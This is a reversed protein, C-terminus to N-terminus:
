VLPVNPFDCPPQTYRFFKTVFKSVPESRLLTQEIWGYNHISLVPQVLYVDRIYFLQHGLLGGQLVPPSKASKILIRTLLRFFPMFNFFWRFIVLILNIISNNPGLYQHLQKQCDLCISISVLRFIKRLKKSKSHYRFIAFYHNYTFFVDVFKTFDKAPPKM